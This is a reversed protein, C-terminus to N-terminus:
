PHFFLGKPSLPEVPVSLETPASHCSSHTSSSLFPPVLVESFTPIYLKLFKFTEKFNQYTYKHSGGQIGGQVSLNVQPLSNGSAM